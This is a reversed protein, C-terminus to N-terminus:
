AAKDIESVGSDRTPQPPPAGKGETSQARENPSKGVSRVNAVKNLIDFWFPAGLSAALCTILLGLVRSFWGPADSPVHGQWGLPFVLAGLDDLSKSLRTKADLEESTALVAAERDTKEVVARAREAVLARADSDLALYRAVALTDTNLMGSLVACIALITLQTNRKYWASVRTMSHDFWTSLGAQFAELQNGSGELWLLLVRRLASGPPMKELTQRITDLNPRVGTSLLDILIKAFMAPPLYSPETGDEKMSRMLPHAMFLAHLSKAEGTVPDPLKFSEDGLLSQLGRGLYAARRDFRAALIENAASAALAVLLYVLILGLAVDLVLSGWM